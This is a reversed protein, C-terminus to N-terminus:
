QIKCLEKYCIRQDIAILEYTNNDRMSGRHTKRRSQKINYTLTHQKQM